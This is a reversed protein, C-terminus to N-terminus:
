YTVLMCEPWLLPHNGVMIGPSALVTFVHAWSSPHADPGRTERGLGSTKRGEGAIHLERRLTEPKTSAITPLFQLFKRLFISGLLHIPFPPNPDSLQKPFRCRDFVHYLEYLVKSFYPLFQPVYHRGAQREIGKSSRFADMQPHLICTLVWIMQHLDSQIVVQHIM